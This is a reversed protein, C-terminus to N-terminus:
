TLRSIYVVGVVPIGFVLIAIIGLVARAFVGSSRARSGIAHLGLTDRQRGVCLKGIIFIAVFVSDSGDTVIAIDLYVTVNSSSEGTATRKSQRTIGIRILLNDDVFVGGDIKVAVHEAM